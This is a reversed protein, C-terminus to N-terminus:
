NIKRETNRYRAVFIREASSVDAITVPCSEIIKQRLIHKFKEVTPCGLSHYLKRTQKASEFQRKTYRYKNEVVSDVLFSTFTAEVTTENDQSSSNAIEQLSHESPRYVYLGEMNRSFKVIGNNTHFQFAHELSSNYTIRCQDELKAFGFKNAVQAHDIWAEGFGEIIGTKSMKKTAANTIMELPKRTTKINSLLAPNMFTAGITSGTDLIIVDKLDEKIEETMESTNYCQELQFGSWGKKGRGAAPKKDNDDYNNTHRTSTSIRRIYWNERPTKERLGSPVSQHQMARKEV